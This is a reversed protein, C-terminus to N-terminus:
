KNEILEIELITGYENCSFTIKNGNPDELVEKDGVKEVENWVTSLNNMLYNKNTGVFSDFYDQNGNYAEGTVKERKAKAKEQIQQEEETLEQENTNYIKTIQQVKLKVSTITDYEDTEITITDSSPSTFTNEEQKWNEQTLEREIEKINTEIFTNLYDQYHDYSKKDVNDRKSKASEQEVLAQKHEKTISSTNKNIQIFAFIGVVVVSAGILIKSSLKM